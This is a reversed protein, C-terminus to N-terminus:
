ENEILRAVTKGCLKCGGELVLNGDKLQGFYNVITTAKRCNGCWINNLIRTRHQLPIAEWIKRANPAFIDSM